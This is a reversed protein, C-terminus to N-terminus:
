RDSIRFLTKINHIVFRLGLLNNYSLDITMWKDRMREGFTTKTLKAPDFISVTSPSTTDYDFKNRPVQVNFQQEVKRLNTGYTLDVWDTNQYENYFRVKDFTTNKINVNDPYAPQTISGPYLNLDDSWEINDNVTESLWVLNDFVKTYLPQENVILKLSSPSPEQNYFIGYTGHNHLYMKSNDIDNDVSWLFRNNNIYINPSFSYMSVFADQFESYSITLNENSKLDPLGFKGFSNNKFTYLFENNQYDYTVLLGKGIIPNDNDILAEHLRKYLFGRQGKLDSVPNVAEGNFLMIKKQRIDIYTIASQSRYVSWQHRSGSDISRYYHKQITQSGNGLSIPFGQADGTLMSVPNVMLVGIGKEQIYYLNQNLAILSTIGGYNGEVDYFQTIPYISWSDEIENDIKVNSYYVRSRWEDNIVFNFPKPFFKIVNKENSHYYDYNFQDVLLYSPDVTLDRDLHYGYRVNQNNSNTCPFYYTNSMQLERYSGLGLANGNGAGGNYNYQWFTVAVSKDPKSIKQHDWYNLYVDGGFCKFTINKNNTLIQQNRNLPIFSGCAIYENASRASYTNGGYQLPNPRYYLGMLKESYTCGYLWAEIKETTDFMLLTTDSGIGSREPNTSSGINAVDPGYNRMYNRFHAIGTDASDIDAGNNVPIGKKIKKNTFSSGSFTQNEYYFLLYYPMLESDFGTSWRGYGGLNFQPTRYSPQDTESQNNNIFSDRADGEETGFRYRPNNPHSGSPTFNAAIVKSRILIKDEAKYSYGNTQFDFCDFTLMTSPISSGNDGSQALTELATQSPYPDYINIVETQPFTFRVIYPQIDRWLGGGLSSDGTDGAFTNTLMGSGLITKNENTREVRVIQYGSIYEAVSSVDIKFKVYISQGWIQGNYLFSNRFDTIGAAISQTGRNITNLDSTAPMKIDGIWETFYPASQLDFFQIGYRYIEESQVSRAVSTYFPNKSTGVGALPYIQDESDTPLLPPISATQGLILDIPNESTSIGIGTRMSFNNVIPLGSIMWSSGADGQTVVLDCLLINETGFEYEVFLGKGGLVTSNPKYYCANVGPEGLSDYYENIMDDTKPTAIATALTYPTGVGKIYIDEDDSTKARFARADFITSIEKQKISKVNGWFLINDKTEVTKAHTFGSSLTLFEELSIIDWTDPISALTFENTINQEPTVYIVPLDTKTARYLIIFEMSDWATDINNLTWVISRGSTASGGGQYDVFATNESGLYHVMNSTQSYNSIQGANKKLRYALEYTGPSITGGSTFEKLLPLEFTVGPFVSILAPNLAFLQPNTVEITRISNYFDTWYLRQLNGSEYRGLVATPAIPHFKTFDLYNAYILTLTSERTVNNISLKWIAGIDTFSDNPPITITNECTFLYIDEDIFQSGIIILDSVGEVYSERTNVFNGSVNVFQLTYRVDTATRNVLIIPDVAPEAPSCDKYTPQQYIVVYNDAWAVAFSKLVNTIPNTTEYCNVLNKIANYVTLGLVGEAINIPATTQGNITITVVDDNVGGANVVQLKFIDRLEPLQINCENGKINVLSGNSEGLTTVGRFNLAQLYSDKSHFIKSLDSNMGGSFNNNTEM